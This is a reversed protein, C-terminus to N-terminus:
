RVRQPTHFSVANYMARQYHHHNVYGSSQVLYSLMSAMNQLQQQVMDTKTTTLVEQQPGCGPHNYKVDQQNHQLLILVKAQIVKVPHNFQIRIMAEAQTVEDQILCM